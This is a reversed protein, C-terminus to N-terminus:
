ALELEQIPHQRLQLRSPVSNQHEALHGPHTPPYVPATAAARPPPRSVGANSRTNYLPLRTNQCRSYQTKNSVM